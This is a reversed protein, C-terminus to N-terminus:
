GGIKCDHGELGTEGQCFGSTVVIDDDDLEIIEMNPEQYEKKM